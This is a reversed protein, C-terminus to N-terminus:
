ALTQLIAQAEAMSDVFEIMSGDATRYLLVFQQPGQFIRWELPGVSPSVFAGQDMLNSGAPVDVWPQFASGGTQENIYGEAAARAEDESNFTGLPIPDAGPPTVKATYRGDGLGKLTVQWGGYPYSETFKKIAKKVGKKIDKKAKEMALYGLGGVVALVILTTGLVGPNNKKRRSM